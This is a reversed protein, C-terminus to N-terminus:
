SRRASRGAARRSNTIATTSRIRARRRRRHPLIGVRLQAARTRRSVAREGFGESAERAQDPRRSVPEVADGTAHRRHDLSQEAELQIRAYMEGVDRETHKGPHDYFKMDSKTYRESAKADALLKKGPQKFDYDNFEVKGTRFRRESSWHYIHERDRRDDGALPVFPTAAHGPVPEHSAKGNALWMTHKDSTHKFFYYIGHQEMLRSLFALSTERYQM